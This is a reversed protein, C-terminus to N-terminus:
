EYASFNIRRTRIFCFNIRIAYKYLLRVSQLIFIIGKMISSYWLCFIFIIHDNEISVDVFMRRCYTWTFVFVQQIYVTTVRISLPFVVCVFVFWFIHRIHGHEHWEKDVFRIEGFIFSQNRSCIFFRKREILLFSIYYIGLFCNLVYYKYM